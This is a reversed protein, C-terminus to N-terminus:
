AKPRAQQGTELRYGVGRVTKLIDGARRLKTRLRRMYVDVVNSGLNGMRSWVHSIIDGRPVVEGSRRMLYCLLVFERQTLNVGLEGIRVSRDYENVVLSGARLVLPAVGRRRAVAHVRAVLEQMDVPKVVYDDAGTDLAVVKDFVNSRVSIMVVASQNGTRRVERCLTLGDMGPLNWDLLMVDYDRQKLQEIAHEGTHCSDVVHGRESFVRAMLGAQARNDDVVLLKV